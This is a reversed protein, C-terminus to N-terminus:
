YEIEHHVKFLKITSLFGNIPNRQNNKYKMYYKAEFKQHYFNNSMKLKHSCSKIKIKKFIERGALMSFSLYELWVM